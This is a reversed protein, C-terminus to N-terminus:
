VKPFVGLYKQSGYFPIVLFAMGASGEAYQVAMDGSRTIFMDREVWRCGVSMDPTCNKYKTRLVGDKTLWLYQREPDSPKAASEDLLTWTQQSLTNNQADRSTAQLSKAPYNFRLEVTAASKSSVYFLQALDDTGKYEDGGPKLPTTKFQYVSHSRIDQRNPYEAQFQSQQPSSVVCGSLLLVLGLVSLQRM